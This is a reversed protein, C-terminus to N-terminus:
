STIPAPSQAAPLERDRLPRAAALLWDLIRRLEAGNPAGGAAELDRETDDVACALAYLEDHLEDLAERAIVLEGESLALEGARQRSVWDWQRCRQSCFERPRGRGARHPLARRCWRCRRMETM